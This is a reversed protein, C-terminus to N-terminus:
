SSTAPAEPVGMFAGVIALALGGLNILFPRKAQEWHLFVFALMVPSLLLSGLGWWVSQQFALVLLWLATGVCILGGVVMLIMSLANM